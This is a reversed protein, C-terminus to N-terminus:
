TVVLACKHGYRAWNKKSHSINWVFTTSFILVLMKHEIFKKVSRREM